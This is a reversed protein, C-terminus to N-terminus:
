EIMFALAQQKSIWDFSARTLPSWGGGHAELVVPVFKFGQAECTHANGQFSRKLDNYRHFVLGPTEAVPHFLESQMGSSIAFDLAEGKGSAGRPLWVDAPRRGSHKQPLGDAVPRQPLLNAKEREPRLAAETAEEYCINRIANHRVTRDGGCECTLAHDGWRDMVVGCLPCYHEAEYVPARLRRRLTIKFLQADIERGDDVPPATLFAGAGPLSSLALHACFFRDHAQEGLMEQYLAADIM